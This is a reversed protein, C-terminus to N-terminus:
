DIREFHVRRAAPDVALLKVRVEQGLQPKPEITAIVAPRRLQIVAEDRRHNVVVADFEGGVWPELVMAEMYDVIARELSQERQRSRGMISPLEPLM